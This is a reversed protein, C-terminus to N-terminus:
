IMLIASMTKQERHIQNIKPKELIQEHGHNHGRVNAGSRESRNLEQNRGSQSTLKAGTGVGTSTSSFLGTRMAVWRCFILLPDGTRRTLELTCIGKETDKIAALFVLERGSEKAYVLAFGMRAGVAEITTVADELISQLQFLAKADRLGLIRHFGDRHIAVARSHISEFTDYDAFAEFMSDYILDQLTLRELRKEIDSPLTFV